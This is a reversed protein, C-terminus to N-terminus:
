KRYKKPTYKKNVIKAQRIGYSLTEIISEIAEQSVPNGSLMFGDINNQLDEKLLQIKREIDKEDKFTLVSKEKPAESDSPSIHGAASMLEEYTVENYAHNAIKRLTDPKPAQKNKNNIIRSLNGPDIGCHQAFQNLTRDGQAKKVLEILLDANFM